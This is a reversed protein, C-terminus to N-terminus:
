DILHAELFRASRAFALATANADFLDPISANAFSHKTALYDFREVPTGYDVLRDIFSEPDAGAVWDDREAFQLLVPNPIVGDESLGLTAYYAVVADAGGGQAHLLALWGGMSFGLVGVRESGEARADRIVDDILDLAVAVELGQMLQEASDPDTTCWGDFLDPVAVRFGIRALAQAMPEISPLRGYWDHLVVVLPHGPEGYFLPIGPSPIPVLEPV